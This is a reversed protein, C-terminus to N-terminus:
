AMAQQQEARPRLVAFPGQIRHVKLLNLLKKVQAQTLVEGAALLVVGDVTKIESALTDGQRFSRVAMRTLTHPAVVGAWDLKGDETMRMVTDLVHPDYTGARARIAAFDAPSPASGGAQLQLDNLVHLIRAGAPISEEAVDDKPFGSGDFHKSQYYAIEAVEELRPIHGILDRSIEPVQEVIVQEDPTLEEFVAIKAVIDPPLTLMGIHSLMAAMEIRWVPAAGLERAVARALDRLREPDGVLRNDTLRVIDLLMKISGSLTNQLLDREATILEHQKLGANLGAVLDETACPKTFFRFVNGQNVARAATEQDANGTLMMRVTDPAKKEIQRLFDIGNMGPMRMDTVVVAFPGDADIAALGAAGGEAVVIDFSSRLQRRLAALVNKEDDVILIKRIM